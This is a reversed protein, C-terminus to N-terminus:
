PGVGWVELGVCEFSVARGKRDGPSCLPENDFTPCRASSGDFLSEDLYLGYVGDGGGFSLFEPECLAVYENKGTWKYVQLNGNVYRWLFSEGSGYYGKGKSQRVGDGMYVGFIADGSDKMVVLASVKSTFASSVKLQPQNECKNYLTHLSIGHQDLSYLLNWSRPLRALAPLRSRIMEALSVDLVAVTADRRGKLELNGSKKEILGGIGISPNPSPTRSHSHPQSNSSPLGPVLIKDVPSSHRSIPGPVDLSNSRGNSSSGAELLERDLDGSYGKDWDYGEPKYGPAGTPAVFVHPAFPSHHTGGHLTPQNLITSPLSPTFSSSLSSAISTPFPFSQTHRSGRSDSSSQSRTHTNSVSISTTASRSPHEIGNGHPSSESSSSRLLSPVWRSSINSLTQYSPSQTITSEADPVDETRSSSLTSSTSAVPPAPGHPLSLTSKRTVIQPSSTKAHRTTHQISADHADSESEEGPKIPDPKPSFFDLDLDLLSTPAESIQQSPNRLDQPRKSRNEEYLIEDIVDRKNREHAAKAEQAFSDFFSWSPSKVHRPKYSSSTENAVAASSAAFSLPDESPPVSVFSGFESDPSNSAEHQVSRALPKFIVNSPPEPSARPTPPSFLTAFEEELQEKTDSSFQTSPVPILPPFYNMASNM